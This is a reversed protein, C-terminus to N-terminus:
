LLSLINQCAYDTLINKEQLTSRIRTLEEELRQRNQLNNYLKEQIPKVIRKIQEQTLQDDEPNETIFRHTIFLESGTIVQNQITKVIDEYCKEVFRNTIYKLIVLDLIYLFKSDDEESLNKDVLSHRAILSDLTNFLDVPASIESISRVTDQRLQILSASNRRLAIWYIINIEKQSLHKFQEDLFSTIVDDIVTSIEELFNSIKGGCVNKVKKAVIKIILPNKYNRIFKNLENETGALEEEILFSKVDEDSMDGLKLFYVLKGELAEISIPKTRSLLLLSSQHTEKAVRKLLESYGRHENSSRDIIEEWADLVLLCRYKRLYQMLQSIDGEQVQGQSLFQILETLLEQLSPASDLSRWIIYDYRNVINQNKLLQCTLASKGIGGVGHIVVLRCHEEILWQQLKTLEQTRGYFNSLRPAASLDINRIVLDEWNLELVQCFAKFFNAEIPVNAALFRKWTMYSVSYHEKSKKLEEWNRNPELIKSVEKLWRDDAIIWGIRIRAQKILRKGQESAKLTPRQNM